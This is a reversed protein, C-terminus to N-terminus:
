EQEQLWDPIHMNWAATEAADWVHNRIPHVPSCDLICDIHFNYTSIPDPNNNKRTVLNLGPKGQDIIGGCLDCFWLCEHTVTKRPRQECVLRHHKSMLEQRHAQNVALGYIGLTLMNLIRYKITKDVKPPQEEIWEQCDCDVAEETWRKSCVPSFDYYMCMQGIMEDITITEGYRWVERLFAEVIRRRM